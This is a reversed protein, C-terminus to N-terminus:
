ANRRTHGRFLPVYRIGCPCEQVLQGNGDTFLALAHGHPCTPAGVEGRETRRHVTRTTCGFHAHHQGSV